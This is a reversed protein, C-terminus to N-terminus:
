SSVREVIAPKVSETIVKCYKKDGKHETITQFQVKKNVLLTEPDYHKGVEVAIGMRMFLLALKSEPMIVTPYGAKVKKGDATEITLDTYQYPKDRYAVDMIVGTHVGDELKNEPQCLIEM